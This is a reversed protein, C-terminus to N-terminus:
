LSSSDMYAHSRACGSWVSSGAAWGLRDAKDPVHLGLFVSHRHDEARHKFVVVVDDDAFNEHLHTPVRWVASVGFLELTLWEASETQLLEFLASSGAVCGWLHQEAVPLGGQLQLVRVGSDPVVDSVDGKTLDRPRVKLDDDHRCGNRFKHQNRAHKWDQEWAVGVGIGSVVGDVEDVGEPVVQM